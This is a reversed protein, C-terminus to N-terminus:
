ADTNREKKKILADMERCWARVRREADKCKRILEMRQRSEAEAVLVDRRAEPDNLYAARTSPNRLEQNLSELITRHPHAWTSPTNKQRPHNYLVACRHAEYKGYSMGAAEAEAVIRGVPTYCCKKRRSIQIVEKQKVDEGSRAIIM